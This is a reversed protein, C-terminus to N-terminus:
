AMPIEWIKKQSNPMAVPVGIKTSKVRTMSLSSDGEMILVINTAWSCQHSPDSVAARWKVESFESFPPQANNVVPERGSLHHECIL